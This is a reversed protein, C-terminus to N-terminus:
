RETGTFQKFYDDRMNVKISKVNELAEVREHILEVNAIKKKGLAKTQVEVDGDKASVEIEDDIDILHAKVHYALAIDEILRLSYTM